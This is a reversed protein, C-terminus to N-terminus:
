RSIIRKNNKIHLFGGSVYANEWRSIYYEFENNCWGGGIDYGWKGQDIAGDNFEDNWVLRYGGSVGCNIWILFYILLILIVKM